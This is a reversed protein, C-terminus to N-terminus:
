CLWKRPERIMVTTSRSSFWTMDGDTLCCDLLTVLIGVTDVLRRWLPFTKLSHMPVRDLDKMVDVLYRMGIVLAFPNM